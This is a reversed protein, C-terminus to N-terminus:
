YLYEDAKDIETIYNLCLGKVETGMERIIGSLNKAFEAFAQLATSTDGEMISDELIANLINIYKDIGDQLDSSWESFLIGMANFYEDDIKIEANAM